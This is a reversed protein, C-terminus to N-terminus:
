PLQDAATDWKSIPMLGPQSVNQRGDLPYGNLRPAAVPAVLNALVSTSRVIKKRPHM